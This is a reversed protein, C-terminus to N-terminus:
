AFQMTIQDFDNDCEHSHAQCNASFAQLSNAHWAKKGDCHCQGSVGGEGVVNGL